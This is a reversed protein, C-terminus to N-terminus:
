VSLTRVLLCTNFLFFRVMNCLDGKCLCITYKRRENEKALCSVNPGRIYPVKDTGVTVGFDESSSSVACRRDTHSPEREDKGKAVFTYNGCANFGSPCTLLEGKDTNCGGPNSETPGCSYCQVPPEQCFSYSKFYINRFQLENKM